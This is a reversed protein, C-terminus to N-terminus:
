EEIRRTTHRKLYWCPPCGLHPALSQVCSQSEVPVDFDFSMRKDKRHVAYYPQVLVSDRPNSRAALYDALYVAIVFVALSLLVRRTRTM